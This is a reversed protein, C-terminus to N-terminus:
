KHQKEKVILSLLQRALTLKDTAPLDQSGQPWFVRLANADANFGLGAVSVDNAAIMNLNKRKLKDRAYAEVDHTEAAFGVMFPRNALSAVTALIDPNRVLALQMEEASKKIKSTAIDSVRYDAVAACGIFIDKNDVNEMVADLMNQASEVNIRTVGEPTALNVPGAVLTVDAGMDAAAKALAFGMKGSSHNSIYRVPDIAERTPGATILVSQGALPQSEQEAYVDKTAFFRSALEAIELPELMRGPGVEGCAQSGSAPGWLTYGRSQLSALNAQTALNRYMQQNMAPCLAIPAETALCTTTILEDAMGANIRAILNATSPAIIVLDAWRALEIHGMAAEAAPDLLSSSVPHGSLAQLTLPTIFEMASQSMVVRVDFGREKLRRVLDASKYAAIGGGIGLLVNKTILSVSMM